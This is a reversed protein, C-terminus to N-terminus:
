RWIRFILKWKNKTIDVLEGSNKDVVQINEINVNFNNTTIDYSLKNNLLAIDGINYNADAEICQLLCDFNYDNINEIYLNHNISYQQNGIYLEEHKWINNYVSKNYFNNNCPYQIIKITKNNERYVEGIVIGNFDVWNNGDYEVMKLKANISILAVDGIIPNNPLNHVNIYFNQKRAIAQNDKIYIYYKTFENDDGFHIENLSNITETLSTTYTLPYESLDFYIDNGLSSNVTISDNNTHVKQLLGYYVFNEPLIPEDLYSAIIDVMTLDESAIMFINIDSDQQIYRTKANINMENFGVENGFFASLTKLNLIKSEKRKDSTINIYNQANADPNCFYNDVLVDTDTSLQINRTKNDENTNALVVSSIIVPIKSEIKVNSTATSSIWSNTNLNNQIKGQFEITQLSIGATSFSGNFYIRYYYYGQGNTNIPFTMELGATNQGILTGVNIWNINDNSVQIFGSKFNNATAIENKILVKDFLLKRDAHFVLWCPNADTTNGHNSWWANEKTTKDGNFAIFATGHSSSVTYNVFNQVLTIATFKPQIWDAYENTIINIGDMLHYAPNKNTGEIQICSILDNSDSNLIPQKWSTYSDDKCGKLNGQEFLGNIKKVIKEKLVIDVSNTSDKVSTPQITITENEAVFGYPKIFNKPCSNISYQYKPSTNLDRRLDNINQSILENNKICVFNGGNNELPVLGEVFEHKLLNGM